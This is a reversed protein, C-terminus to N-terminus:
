QYCLCKSNILFIYEQYNGDFQTSKVLTYSSNNNVYMEIDLTTNMADYM